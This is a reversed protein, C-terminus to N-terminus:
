EFVFLELSDYSFFGESVFYALHFAFTDDGDWFCPFDAFDAPGWMYLDDACYVPGYSPHDYGIWQQGDCYIAAYQGGQYTVTVEPHITFTFDIGYFIDNIRFMNTGLAREMTLGPDDGTFFSNYYFTGTLPVPLGDAGMVYDADTLDKALLRSNDKLKYVPVWELAASATVTISFNRQTDLTESTKEPVSIVVSYNVGKEFNEVNLLQVPITTVCAGDEFTASAPVSFFNAADANAKVDLAVTVSGKGNHRHLEVDITQTGTADGAFEATRTKAVFYAITSDVNTADFIPGEQSKDCAIAAAMVVFASLLKIINKM